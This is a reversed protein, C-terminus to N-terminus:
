RCDFFMVHEADPNDRNLAAGFPRMGPSTEVGFGKTTRPGITFPASAIGGHNIKFRIPASGANLVYYAQGRGPVPETGKLVLPACAGLLRSVEASCDLRREAAARMLRGTLDMNRARATAYGLCLDREPLTALQGPGM